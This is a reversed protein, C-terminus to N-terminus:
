RSLFHFDQIFENFECFLFLVLGQGSFIAKVAEIFVLGVSTGDAAIHDNLGLFEPFFLFVCTFRNACDKHDINGAAHVAFRQIFQLM